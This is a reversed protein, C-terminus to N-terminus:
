NAGELSFPWLWLALERDLILQVVFVSALRELGGSGTIYTTIVM